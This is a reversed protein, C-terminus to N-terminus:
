CEKWEPISNFNRILKKLIDKYEEKKFTMEKTTDIILYTGDSQTTVAVYYAKSICKQALERPMLDYINIENIKDM